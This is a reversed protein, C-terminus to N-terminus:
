DPPEVKGTVVTTTHGVRHLYGEEILHTLALYAREPNCDLRRALATGSPLRHGYPWEGSEIKDLIYKIVREYKPAAAM